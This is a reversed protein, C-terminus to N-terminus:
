PSSVRYFRQPSNTASPDTFQYHGSGAPAEVVPGLNSWQNMPWTLNTTALVTFSMDTSNTFTFSAPGNPARNLGTLIGPGAPNYVGEAAGIDPYLGVVRPFGRQDTTLSPDIGNTCGDIAPSGALPPMTQTPGGYNALPALLPNGNTLNAGGYVVAGYVDSASVAHNGAVISNTM